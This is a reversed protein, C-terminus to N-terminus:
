STKQKEQSENQPKTKEKEAYQFVDMEDENIMFALKWDLYTLKDAFRREFM